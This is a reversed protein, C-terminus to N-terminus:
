NLLIFQSKEYITKCEFSGNSLIDTYSKIQISSHITNKMNIYSSMPDQDYPPVEILDGKRMKLKRKESNRSFINKYVNFAYLPSDTM